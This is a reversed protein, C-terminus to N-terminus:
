ETFVSKVKQGFSKEHTSNKIGEFSISDDIDLNYAQFLANKFVNLVTTLIDFDPDEYTGSFPVKSASRDFKQNETIELAFGAFAQWSKNLFTGEEKFNFISVDDLIPKLYGNIKSDRMVFESALAFTGSEFDLSAYTEWLPNLQRLDIDKAQIDLDMDPVERLINLRGNITLDGQKYIKSTLKVTSPLSDNDQNTNRLNTITLNIDHLDVKAGSKSDKNEFEAIGDTIVFENIKLPIFDIIPETWSADGVQDDEESEGDSFYLHPSEVLIEGVLSGSFAASWDVSIDARPVVVYPEEVENVTVYIELGELILGGRYLELDVDDLKCSYGEVANISAVLENKIYYPLWIRVGILVLVISGWIILRRKRRKKKRLTKDNKNEQAEEQKKETIM